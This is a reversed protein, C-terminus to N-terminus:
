SNQHSADVNNNQSSSQAQSVGDYRSPTDSPYVPASQASAPTAAFSALTVVFLASITNRVLYAMIKEGSQHSTTSHVHCELGFRVAINRDTSQLPTVRSFPPTRRYPSLRDALDQVRADPM